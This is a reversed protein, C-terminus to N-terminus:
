ILSVEPPQSACYFHFNGGGSSIDSSSDSEVPLIWGDFSFRGDKEFSSYLLTNEDTPETPEDDTCGLIFLTLLLSTFLKLYTKNSM